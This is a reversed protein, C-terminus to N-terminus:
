EGENETLLKGSISKKEKQAELSRNKLIFVTSLHLWFDFCVIVIRHMLLRVVPIRYWYFFHQVYFGPFCDVLLILFGYLVLLFFIDQQCNYFRPLMGLITVVSCFNNRKGQEQSWETNLKSAKEQKNAYLYHSFAQYYLFKKGLVRTTTNDTTFSPRTQLLFFFNHRQTRCKTSHKSKCSLTSFFNRVWRLLMSRSATFARLNEVYEGYMEFCESQPM